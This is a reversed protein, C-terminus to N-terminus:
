GNGSPAPLTEFDGGLALYLNIRNQLRDNRLLIMSNRANVARRQAELVSLIGVVGETYDRSAQTEASSAQLLELQLSKEQAALSREAALASEVERFAQLAIATFSEIAAENLALARRAQASLAGGRYIPQALSAAVSWVISRPDAILDALQDSSTSGRGTLVISPLLNKRAADSRNASAFVNSAAAVIDPRRMLLEAPLGAPPPSGLDPFDENGKIGGSPYRGLLGELTRSAEARALQRNTLATQAAAVNTLGFQVDLSTSDGAFYNRKTIRYNREFSDLTQYALEVQRGAEILNFWAKCTNAALSLRAGRFDALTGAYDAQVAQDLDRLRGWLDLEWAANVSLGYDSFRAWSGLDGDLNQNRSGTRSASVGLGVTPLRQARGIITGERAARLFAATARLNPNYAVAERVWGNMDKDDFDELWGTSINGDNGSGAENWVGPVDLGEGPSRSPKPTQFAACGHLLFAAAFLILHGSIRLM